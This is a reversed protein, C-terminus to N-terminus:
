DPMLFAFLCAWSVIGCLAAVAAAVDRFPCISQVQQTIRRTLFLPMELSTVSGTPVAGFGKM